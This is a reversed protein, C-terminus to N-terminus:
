GARRRYHEDATVRGRLVQAPVHGVHWASCEDCLYPRLHEGTDQRLRYAHVKAGRRTPHARKGTSCDNHLGEGLYPARETM